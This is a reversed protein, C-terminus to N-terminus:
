LDHCKDDGKGNTVEIKGKFGIGDERYNLRFQLKPYDKSVKKLWAVPPSWASDFGYYLETGGDTLFAEIEWKTGWNQIRWDWWARKKDVYKKKHTSPDNIIFPFTPKVRVKSYDPEPYLKALSLPTDKSKAKQRFKILEKKDGTIKLTNQCWNPM